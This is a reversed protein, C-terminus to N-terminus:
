RESLDVMNSKGNNRTEEIDDLGCIRNVIDRTQEGLRNNLCDDTRLRPVEIFMQHNIALDSLRMNYEHLERKYCYCPVLGDGRNGCLCPRTEHMNPLLNKYRPALQKLACTSANILMTKGNGSPGILLLSHNGAIAVECARKAHEQGNIEAFDFYTDM